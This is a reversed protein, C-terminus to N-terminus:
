SKTKRLRKNVSDKLERVATNGVVMNIFYYVGGGLLMSALIRLIYSDVAMRVGICVAGIGACGALVAALNRGSWRVKVDRSFWWCIGVVRGEAFLTTLAAGNMGLVPILLINLVVNEAASVVTAWFFIHDKRSIVLIGNAYFNGLVAFILSFCLIKLTGAGVMYSKGGILWMVESSLFYLGIVCPFVLLILWSRLQSLLKRYASQDQRGAYNALRPITATVIANPLTKIITYVRSSITYVGVESDPRLFGLIAIDSKVYIQIALSVGLLYLVPRIHRRLNPHLTLKLPIYKRTYFINSVYGGANAILMIVTYKVYDEPRHVLLFTLILAITQFAVYRATVYTFDEFIQNIWDRGLVSSIINFSLILTLLRDRGLRPVRFLLLILILYVAIMAWFNITFIETAFKTVKEKDDRVRAGERTAYTMVGLGAVTMAMTIISDSFSYKGLNDRTLVRSVYPYTILPFLINSIQKFINLAANWKLSRNKAM